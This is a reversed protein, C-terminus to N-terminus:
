SPRAARAGFVRHPADGGVRSIVSSGSRDVPRREAGVGVRFSWPPVSRVTARWAEAATVRCFARSGTMPYDRVAAAMRTQGRSFAAGLIVLRGRARVAAVDNTLFAVVTRVFEKGVVLKTTIQGVSAGAHRSGSPGGRPPRVSRKIYPYPLTHQQDVLTTRQSRVGTGAEFPAAM